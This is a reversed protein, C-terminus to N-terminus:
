RTLTVKSIARPRDPDVGRALALHLAHLQAPVIAAIPALWDPLGAPAALAWTARDRAEARDSLILVRAGHERRLRELVADVDAAAVGSPAAAFVAEGPAVLALPGHLFDASSYPEASLYTLEKLKLAWERATAYGYSRGLVIARALTAQDRAIAEAATEEALGTTIAAPLQDIAAWDDRADTLGASLMALVTLEATYTKTAAVAAETGAHLELVRDAAQGLASAPENTIAITVGGARRGAAVVAAVDPSAGSQSIGIVLARALRMPAEHLSVISPSALATALGHRIGFLYQAYTAAHDSTGRAAIVVFEPDAARIAKAAAEVSARGREIARGVSHPQEHIEAQLSV